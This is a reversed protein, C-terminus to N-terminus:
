GGRWTGRLAASFQEARRRSSSSASAPNDVWTRGAATMEQLLVAVSQAVPVLQVPLTAGASSRVVSMALKAVVVGVKWGLRPAERLTPPMRKLLPAPAKVRLPVPLGVSVSPAEPMEWCSLVACVMAAERESASPAAALKWVVLVPARVMELATLLAPKRRVRPAVLVPAPVMLPIMLPAPPRVLLPDLVQVSEPALVKVPGTMMLAPVSEILERPLTEPAAEARPVGVVTPSPVM